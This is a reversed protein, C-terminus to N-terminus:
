GGTFVEEQHCERRDLVILQVSPDPTNSDESKTLMHWVTSHGKQCTFFFLIVVFVFFLFLSFYCCCCGRWYILVVGVVVVFCLMINLDNDTASGSM